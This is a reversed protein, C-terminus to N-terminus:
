QGLRDLIAPLHVQDAKYNGTMAYMVLNIGFRFADERQREGGPVVAFMPRRGEDLAWAAAWDHSGIILSSVGDNVGGPHREVWVQGGTWRGPFDPMLYFARTLIHDEPVPYLPPIDLGRLLTRLRRASPSLGGSLSTAGVNHDRTDFLIIGGTKLYHNVKVAAAPSLASQSPTIPWYILPFFILEDREVDIAMPEAPEISTRATLVIVLGALGRLSTHDIDRDGTKIYALRSQLTAALVFYDGESTAEQAVAPAAGALVTMLALGAATRGARRSVGSPMLGRLVMGAFLDVFALVLAAVLFWPKLDTEGAEGFVRRTAGAPLTDIAKIAILGAGLNLARRGGQAGYYGPPYRPGPALDAFDSAAVARSHEAPETLRGFGDLTRLPALMGEDRDGVVGQSLQVLRHLMEVFLGSIALNSWAFSATTHVLVLWGDGRREATVLPTGDALRAWTKAALDLSPEALVQRRIEVDPPIHLGAFPTDDAFRALSAPMDWSMTGGLARDGIRLRIPVLDDVGEAMRPGAFRVLVGGNDIWTEILLRETGVITKVDALVLVALPRALLDEVEGKRVESIPDLARELYFIESLLPQDAEIGAGAVLGVPRRRWREDFLVVANAGREGEIALRAMRNRLEAPVELAATTASEGDAFSAVMRALVAGDEDSVRLWLSEEGTTATR